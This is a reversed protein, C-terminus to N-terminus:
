APMRARFPDSMRVVPGHEGRAVFRVALNRENALAVGAEAGMVTFATAWADARMADGAIVTVAATAGEVPEGSRPDLTHSYSVGAQEFAHWHDGSTAVAAGDLVIVCPEGNEDADPSAEVLVQWASGDPKSGFGRLEGGVEVLAAVIGLVRLHSVVLDVGYGKAIASLDLQVGGAQLACGAEPQLLVKRWGVRTCADVRVANGPIEQSGQAAGFGWAAVLPGITPDFAGGSERAIDLACSLVTFFDKPLAHWTGAAARNFRSIDSTTEWTSMQAVVRDLQLQIAAHLAHLDARAPAVLKVCWSTGMTEGHLTHLSGPKPYAHAPHTSSYVTTM